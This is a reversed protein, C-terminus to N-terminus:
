SRKRLRVLVKKSFSADIVRAKQNQSQLYDSVKLVQLAKTQLNEEGLFVKLDEDILTFALGTTPNYDVHSINEPRFIGLPPVEQMLGVIKNRMEQDMFLESSELIPKPPLLGPALPPLAEGSKAVPHWLGQSDVHMYALDKLRIDIAVQNPFRRQVQVDDLWPTEQLHKRIQRLSLRWVNQGKLDDVIQLIQPRIHALLASQDSHFEVEVEARELHFFDDQKFFIWSMGSVASVLLTSM